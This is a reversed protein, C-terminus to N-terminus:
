HGAEGGSILKHVPGVGVRHRTVAAAESHSLPRIPRPLRNGAWSESATEKSCAPLAVHHISQSGGEWNSVDTVERGTSELGQQLRTCSAHVPQEELTVPITVSIYAM